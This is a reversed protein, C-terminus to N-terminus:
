HRYTFSISGGPYRQYGHNHRSHHRGYFSNGPYSNYYVVPPPVYMPPAYNQVCPQWTNYYGNWCMQPTQQIVMPPAVYQTVGLPLTIAFSGGAQASGVLGLLGFVASIILKKM